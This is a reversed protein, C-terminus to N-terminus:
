MANSDGPLAVLSCTESSVRSCRRLVNVNKKASDASWPCTGNGWAPVPVMLVSTSASSEKMASRLGSVTMKAMSSGSIATGGCVWRRM